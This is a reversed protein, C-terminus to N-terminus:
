ETEAESLVKQIRRVLLDRQVIDPKEMNDLLNNHSHYASGHSRHQFRLTDCRLHQRASLSM